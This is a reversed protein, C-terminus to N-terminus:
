RPFWRTFCFGLGLGGAIVHRSGLDLSGTVFDVSLFVALEVFKEVTRFIETQLMCFFSLAADVDSLSVEPLEGIDRGDVDKKGSIGFVHIGPMFGPM